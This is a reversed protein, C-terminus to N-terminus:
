TNKSSWNFYFLKFTFYYSFWQKDWSGDGMKLFALCLPSFFQNINSLLKKFRKGDIIHYWDNYLNTFYPLTLTQFSYVIKKNQRKINHIKSLVLNLDFCMQWIEKTLEEHTQQVGLLANKGNMRLTGDSLMIGYVVENFWGPINNFVNIKDENSM